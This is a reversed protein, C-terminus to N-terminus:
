PIDELEGQNPLRARSLQGDEPDTPSHLEEVDRIATRQVLVPRMVALPQGPDGSQPGLHRLDVDFRLRQHLHREGTM